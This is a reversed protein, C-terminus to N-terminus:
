ENVTFTCSITGHDTQSFSLQHDGPSLNVAPSRWCTGETAGMLEPGVKELVPGPQGDITMSATASDVWSQDPIGACTVFYLTQPGSAQQCSMTPWFTDVRMIDPNCDTSQGGPLNRVENRNCPEPLEPPGAARGGADLPVSVRAGAPVAQTTDFASVEAVGEILNVRMESDPESQMFATSALSIAVDNVSMTIEGVGEPTQILLGSVPAEDCASDGVGTRLFFAQLPGFVPDDPQVINLADLNGQPEVLFAAVWGPGGEEPLAVRLWDGADNRGTAAIVADRPLTALIPGGTTPEERVNIAGSAM